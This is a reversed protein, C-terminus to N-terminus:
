KNPVAKLRLIDQFEGVKRRLEWVDLKEFTETLRDKIDASIGADGMIRRYPTLGADHKRSVRAGDRTKSILKQSPMFYNVYMSLLGYMENMIDVTGQGEFRYYGTFRRAVSWNKQEVFCGDNKTEPRGRTFVLGNRRCYALLHDNIFESGNDSDIGKIPFPFTGSLYEVAEVAHVRAKNRMARLGTWGSKVDTMDLTSIFEGTGTSGCHAVCDIEVFGTEDESWDSGRRIPIQSKLLSGPKTLARGRVSVAERDYKLMRDITSASIGTMDEYLAEELVIRANRAMSDLVDKMGAKVRTSSSFDLVAWVRKLVEKHRLSYKPKRGRRDRGVRKRRSKVKAAIPSRGSLVAAAHKRCWGTLETVQDLIAGKQKKKAKRYGSRLEESVERRAGMTIPM